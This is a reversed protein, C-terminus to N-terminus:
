KGPTVCSKTGAKYLKSETAVDAFVYRTAV